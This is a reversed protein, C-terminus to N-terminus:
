TYYKAMRLLRLRFEPLTIASSWHLKDRQLFRVIGGEENLDAYVVPNPRVNWDIRLFKNTTRNQLMLGYLYKEVQYRNSFIPSVVKVDRNYDGKKHNLPKEFLTIWYSM